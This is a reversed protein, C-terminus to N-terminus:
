VLVEDPHRSMWRGIYLCAYSLQAEEIARLDAIFADSHEEHWDDWHACQTMGLNVRVCLELHEASIGLYTKVDDVSLYLPDPLDCLRTM